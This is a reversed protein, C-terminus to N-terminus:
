RVMREKRQLNMLSEGFVCRASLSNAISLKQEITVKKDHLKPAKKVVQVKNGDVYILGAYSPIEDLRILGIPVAYYFYAQKSKKLELYKHKSTKKFDAKFDSRSIKVEIDIAFDSQTIILIDPNFWGSGCYNSIQLKNGKEYFYRQVPTVIDRSTIKEIM